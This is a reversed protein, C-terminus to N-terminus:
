AIWLILGVGLLWFYDRAKIKFEEWALAEGRYGRSLMARYVDENTKVSREWLASINWAALEQGKRYEVGAGIRSKVALYIDRIIEAFLYIYRYCMGLIMIFVQPIKFVRLSKLLAAHRTTLSLAVAFSVCAIVRAVFIGAGGLGQRTIVFTIGPLKWSFLPEGPALLAPLAIFLSFVPIFIWTRKLFFALNIKSFVIFLLCLSYLLFVTNIERALVTQIILLFFGAIKARPDLSQLFGKKLACEDSFVSERLFSSMGFLSREIFNGSKM